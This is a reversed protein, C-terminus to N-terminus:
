KTSFVGENIGLSSRYFEKYPHIINSKTTNTWAETTYGSIMLLYSLIKMASFATIFRQPIFRLNKYGNVKHFKFNKNKNFKDKFVNSSSILHLDYNMAFKSKMLNILIKTVGGKEFSPYFIILTKKM